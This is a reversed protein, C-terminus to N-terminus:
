NIRKSKVKIAKGKKWEKKGKKIEFSFSSSFSFPSYILSYLYFV